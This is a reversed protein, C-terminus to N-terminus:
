DDGSLEEEIDNVMEGEAVPRTTLENRAIIEQMLAFKPNRVIFRKSPDLLMYHNMRSRGSPDSKNMCTMAAVEAVSPHLRKSPDHAAARDNSKKGQKSTNTQPTLTATAKFAMNDGSYSISSAEGHKKSIQYCIGPKLNEKMAKDIDAMSLVKKNSGRLTFHLNFIATIVDFLVFYLVSLEKDYMSAVKDQGNALWTSFKSAIVAFFDYINEIEIGISLMEAIVIPDAYDDLSALHKKVTEEIRGRSNKESFLMYGLPAIWGDPSDVYQPVIQSPFYSAVYFLGTVLAQSMANTESKRVAVQIKPSFWSAATSARRALAAPPIGMSTYINWENPDLRDYLDEGVVPTCGAYKEMAGKFGYKCFLYHAMTTKASNTPSKEKDKSSSHYIRSCVLDFRKPEGNVKVEYFERSFTLRDRLLRVFIHDPGISIVRDALVPSIFWKTDSIFLSGAEGLFPLFIPREEFPKREGTEQDIYSFNLFVLYFDTRSVDFTKAGSSKIGTAKKAKRHKPRSKLSAFYDEEPSAVRIGDFQLEPPFGKAASEIVKRIYALSNKMHIRPLGLALDMNLDPSSDGIFKVLQPHM